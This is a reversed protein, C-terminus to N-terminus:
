SLKWIRIESYIENEGYGYATGLGSGTNSAARYQLSITKTGSLTFKGSATCRTLPSAGANSYENFGLVLTTADTNNYIRLRGTVNLFASSAEAYYTGAPLQINNSALSLGTINSEVITNLDRALWSGSVSTGGSTGSAKQDQISAYQQTNSASNALVFATTAIQTTNTGAAATPATPVGTFAPSALNAKTAAANIAATNAFTTSAIQATNTGAAATPATPVGTLNPSELNAKLNLATRQATSVPKNADSTNDVNALGVDSKNLTVAGTKGAVSTVTNVQAGNEITDLKGKITDQEQKLYATRNTLQQEAAVLFGGTAEGNPDFSPPGAILRDEKAMRYIGNEWVPNETFKSM